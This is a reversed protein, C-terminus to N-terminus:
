AGPAPLVTPGWPPGALYAFVFWGLNMILVSLSALWVARFSASALSASDQEDPRRLGEYCAFAAASGGFLLGKVVLGFVDRVWFMEYFKSFYVAGSVGLMSKAVGCGVAMGICAGLIALPPGSAAGAAIRVAALRASDALHPSGGSNSQSGVRGPIWRPDDDPGLKEAFRLERTTRAALLGALVFGAMMPSLNRFLGIGVVPGAAEVFTAGYYAQMALFSGLSVNILVVMPLGAGIMWGLQRRFAPWFLPRTVGIPRALSRAAAAILIAFGGVYRLVGLVNAAAWILPSKSVSSSHSAHSM